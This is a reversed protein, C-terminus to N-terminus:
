WSCILKFTKLVIGIVRFQGYIVDDNVLYALRGGLDDNPKGGAGVGFSAMGEIM